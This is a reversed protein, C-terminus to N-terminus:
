HKKIFYSKGNSNNIRGQIPSNVCWEYWVKDENEARWFAVEIIENAKVQLPEQKLNVEM